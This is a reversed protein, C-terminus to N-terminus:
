GARAPRELLEVRVQAGPRGREGISGRVGAVAWALRADRPSCNRALYLVGSRHKVYAFITAHSDTVAAYAGSTATLVLAALAVGMSPTIRFRGM